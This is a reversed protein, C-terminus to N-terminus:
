KKKKAISNAVYTEPINGSQWRGRRRLALVEVGTNVLLCEMKGNSNSIHIIIIGRIEIVNMMCENVNM